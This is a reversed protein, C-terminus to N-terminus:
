QARSLRYNFIKQKYLLEQWCYPRMLSHHLLFSAEDAVTVLPTASDCDPFRFEGDPVNIVSTENKLLAEGFASNWFGSSLSERSYADVDICIFTTLM